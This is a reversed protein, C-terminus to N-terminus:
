GWLNRSAQQIHRQNHVLLFELTDGINLKILRSLSTAVKGKAMPKNKSAKVVKLLEEQFQIFRSVVEHPDNIAVPKHQKIARYRVRSGDTSMMRIFYLGIWTNRFKVPTESVSLKDLAKWVKPHYYAAYSNLHEFCEAISWGGSSSPQLLREDSLNQFVAVTETLQAELMSELRFLYDVQDAM